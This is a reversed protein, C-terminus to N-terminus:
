MSSLLYYLLTESPFDNWKWNQKKKRLERAWESLEMQMVSKRYKAELDWHVIFAKMDIFLGAMTVLM